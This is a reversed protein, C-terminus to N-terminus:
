REQRGVLAAQLAQQTRTLETALQVAADSKDSQNISRTRWFDADEIAKKYAWGFVWWQKYGGVAGVFILLTLIGLAGGKALFDYLGQVLDM